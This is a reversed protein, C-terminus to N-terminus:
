LPAKSGYMPSNSNEVTMSPLEGIMAIFRDIGAKVSRNISSRELLESSGLVGRREVDDPIAYQFTPIVIHLDNQAM